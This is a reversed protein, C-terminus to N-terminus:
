NLPVPVWFVCFAFRVMHLQGQNVFGGSILSSGDPPGFLAVPTASLNVQFHCCTATKSVRLDGAFGPSGFDVAPPPPPSPGKTPLTRWSAAPSGVASRQRPPGQGLNRRNCRSYSEPDPPNWVTGLSNIGHQNIQHIMSTDQTFGSDPTKKPPPHPAELSRAKRRNVNIYGGFACM